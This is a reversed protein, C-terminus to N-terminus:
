KPVGWGAPVEVDFQAARSRVKRLMKRGMTHYNTRLNVILSETADTLLESTVKEASDAAQIKVKMKSRVKTDSLGAGSTRAKACGGVVYVRVRVDM